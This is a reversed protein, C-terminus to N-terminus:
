FHPRKASLAPRREPVMLILRHSLSRGSGSGCTAASQYTASTATKRLARRQKRTASETSAASRHEQGAQASDLLRRLVGTRWASPTTGRVQLPGPQTAVKFVQANPVGRGASRAWAGGRM